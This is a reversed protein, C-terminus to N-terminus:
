QTKLTKTFLDLLKTWHQEASDKNYVSHDAIAFGHMAGPYIEITYDSGAAKLATELRQVDEPTFGKDLEAVGIYIKAKIKPILLHPSEPKDTALGGGHISAAARVIEPFGAAVALTFKGGMCYGVTAIRSNDADNSGKLSDIILSTDETVNQLNLLQMYSMLRARENPDTFATTPDFPKHKGSRYYLNPLIVYYGENSFREAMDYLSQRVGFADMYIIIVPLHDKGEPSFAYYDIVGDKTKIDIKKM